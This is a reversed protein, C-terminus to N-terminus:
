LIFVFIGLSYVLLSILIGSLVSLQSELKKTYESKPIDTIISTKNDLPVIKNIGFEKSQKSKGRVFIRDGIDVCNETYKRDGTTKGFLRNKDTPGVGTKLNDLFNVIRETPKENSRIETSKFNKRIEASIGSVRTGSTIVMPNKLRYLSIFGISRSTKVDSFDIVFEENKDTVLKINEGFKIGTGATRWGSNRGQSNWEYIYWSSIVSERGFFPSDQEKGSVIEGEVGIEKEIGETTQKELSKKLKYRPYIYYILLLSLFALGTSIEIQSLELFNFLPVIFFCLTFSITLIRNNM